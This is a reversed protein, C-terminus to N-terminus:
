RPCLMLFVSGIERDESGLGKRIQFRYGNVALSIALLMGM